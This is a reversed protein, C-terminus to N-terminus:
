KVISIKGVGMTHIGEQSTADIQYIYIGSSVTNGEEDRGDWFIESTHRSDPRSEITKFLQGTTSYIRVRADYPPTINHNFRITTSEDMPNPYNDTYGITYSGSSNTRFCTEALSYNNYVDWARIRITHEGPSLGFLIREATGSRSDEVSTKFNRTLDVSGTSDDIWAEIKHGIGNGTTNIGSEDKLKVILLPESNVLECPLYTEDDLYISIEPGKNDENGASTIDDIIFKRFSSKATRKENSYSYLYLRGTNRSYSIDKPIIFSASFRGNNVEYSSQNLAGGFKKIYHYTENVDEVVIDEDGDLMTLIAVGNFSEDIDGSNNRISGEIRLESLAKLKLTDSSDTIAVDNIKDFKAQLQPVLLKMSPDGLLYFKEDNDSYYRLKVAYMVEGLTKYEGTISDPTLLNRYFYENIRANQDSGVVRTASFAGIAGGKNTFVIEESGTRKDPMDFRGFDCTAATVFFMKSLNTMKPVILDRELIEEHAWVRPNGHGIWNLMLAGSANIETLMDETVGYKRKGGPVIETRYEPLYLKVQAMWEPIVFNSLSESQKTHPSGGDIDDGSLNDDAVLIISSRWSDLSMDNEYIKIKEVMWEGLIESDIPFRGVALDGIRDDGNIRVFYDDTTYSDLQSLNYVSYESEFPVVYNRTDYQINKYDYHGDGWLLLYKPKITWNTFCFAVYDRIATPDAIGNGFENYVHTTQVVHVNINSQKKRYEAYKEASHLFEPATVVIMEAGNTESRLNAMETRELQAGFIKSSIYFKKPNGKTLNTSFIYMGGTTAKNTLLIPDEPDTTEFGLIESGTFENMTYETLGALDPETFFSLENEIAKLSRPYHIEYWDLFGTASLGAGSSYNFSLVSRENSIKSAQV